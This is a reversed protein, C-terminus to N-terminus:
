KKEEFLRGVKNLIKNAHNIVNRSEHFIKLQKGIMQHIIKVVKKDEPNESTPAKEVFASIQELTMAFKLEEQHVNAIAHVVWNVAEKFTSETWASKDPVVNDVTFMAYIADWAESYKDNLDSDASYYNAKFNNWDALNFGHPIKALIAKEEAFQADFAKVVKTFAPQPYVGTIAVNVTKAIAGAMLAGYSIGGVILKTKLNAPSKLLAIMAGFAGGAGVGMLWNSAKDITGSLSEMGMADAASPDLKTLLLEHQTGTSLSDFSELGIETAFSKDHNIFDILAQSPGHQETVAIYRRMLDANEFHQSAEQHTRIVQVLDNM